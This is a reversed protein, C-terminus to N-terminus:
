YLRMISSAFSHPSSFKNRVFGGNRRSGRMPTLYFRLLGNDVHSPSYRASRNKDLAFDKYKKKQGSPEESSSRRMSTFGANGSCSMRSSVSSSSRFMKGDLVNARLEPWAESFSREMVNSRGGSRRHIFGWISWGKSWRHTKKPPRVKTPPDRFASDFSESCHERTSTSMDRSDKEQKTFHFLETGGAPSQKFNSVPKTDGLDVSYRRSSSSRDLSRRRRGSSDAYYDRTQVSGGPIASDEVVPILGDSRQVAVANEVVTLKAAFRSPIYRAGGMLYGDWSARREDWSCRPDDLSIRGADLSFRPAIDCSRCGFADSSIDSHTDRCCGRSSKPNKEEEPRLDSSAKEDACGTPQNAKLRRRWKQIKKSFLTAAFWFSGAVEKIDRPPAKKANSHLDIHDKMPRVDASEDEKENEVLMESSAGVFVSEGTVIIEGSEGAVRSVPFGLINREAEIEAAAAVAAAASSSSLLLQDGDTDVNAVDRDDQYFLSWLTSRIRVDCSKRQPEVAAAARPGGRNASFSQCRRLEPRVSSSSSTTTTMKHNTSTIVKHQHAFSSPPGGGGGGETSRFFIFRLSSSTSRRRTNVIDLGALRERLCSACFGTVKEGPHLECAAICRHSNFPLPPPGQGQSDVEM